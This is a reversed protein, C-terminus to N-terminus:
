EGEDRPSNLHPLYFPPIESRHTYKGPGAIQSFNESTREKRQSYHPPPLHLGRSKEPPGADPIKLLYSFLRAYRGGERGEARANIRAIM